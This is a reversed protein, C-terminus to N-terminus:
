GKVSPTKPEKIEVVEVPQSSHGAGDIIWKSKSLTSSTTPTSPPSPRKAM